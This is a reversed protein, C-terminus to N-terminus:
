AAAKNLSPQNDLYALWNTVVTRRGVKKATLKGERILNYVHARSIPLDNVAYGVEGLAGRATTQSAIETTM